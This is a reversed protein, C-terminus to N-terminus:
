HTKEPGWMVWGYNVRPYGGNKYGPNQMPEGKCFINNSHNYKQEIFIHHGWKTPREAASSMQPPDLHIASRAGGDSELLPM